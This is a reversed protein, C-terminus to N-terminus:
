WRYDRSMAALVTGALLSSGADNLHIGDSERVITESGGVPMADRYREGPTFVPVTDIVRVQDMWPEAAVAIAANVTHEITQRARERPTPLTLWYVRAAGAQRYTDMMRRVRAAYIAAWEASCCQVQAGGPGPMPFGENAGIFVVVADPHLQQVQSTSLQGWDVLLTNSIGTGLHPDRTVKVGAPALRQAIDADLPQSMSDGTVLVRELARRPPAPLGLATPDFSDPTVPPVPGGTAAVPTQFGALHSLDRNPSLWATATHGLNALPLSDAVSGAPRGIALVLDRGIGPRLEEGAKRMSRGEFLVLLLAAVAIAVVADRARFRRAGRRDFREMRNDDLRRYLPSM